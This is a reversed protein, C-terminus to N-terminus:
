APAVGPPRLPTLDLEGRNCPALSWGRAAISLHEEEEPPTVLLEFAAPCAAEAARHVNSYALQFTSSLNARTAAPGLTFTSAPPQNSFVGGNPVVRTPLPQGGADLMQMGVFGHLTCAAPARNSLRFTLFITGAAGQGGAFAIALQSTRCRPPRAIESQAGPSAGGLSLPDSSPPSSVQSRPVPSSSDQGAQPRNAQGSGAAQCATVAVLVAALGLMRGTM